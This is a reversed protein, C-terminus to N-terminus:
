YSWERRPVRSVRRLTVTSGVTLARPRLLASTRDDKRAREHAHMGFFLAGSWKRKYGLHKGQRFEKLTRTPEAKSFPRPDIVGTSQDISPM